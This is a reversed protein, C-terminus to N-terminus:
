SASLIPPPSHRPAAPATPHGSPGHAPRRGGPGLPRRWGELRPARPRPPPPRGEHGRGHEVVRPSRSEHVRRRGGGEVRPYSRSAPGSAIVGASPTLGLQTPLSRLQRLERVLGQGRRDREGVALHGGTRTALHDGVLLRSPPASAAIAGLMDDGAGHAVGAGLDLAPGREDLPPARPRPTRTLRNGTPATTWSAAPACHSRSTSPCSRSRPQTFFGVELSEDSTTLGGGVLRLCASVASSMSRATAPVSGRPRPQLLHRRADRARGGIRTGGQGRPGGHRRDSM